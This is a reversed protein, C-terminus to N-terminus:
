ILHKQYIEEVREKLGVLDPRTEWTLTLDAMKKLEPAHKKEEDTPPPAGIREINILLFKEKYKEKLYEAENCFRVDTVCHIFDGMKDWTDINNQVVKVWHLLDISRWTCGYSILIPRLTEKLDGELSFIDANFKERFLDALDHKLADAFAYKIVTKPHAIEKLLQAFTDKGVRRTGTLGIYKINSM